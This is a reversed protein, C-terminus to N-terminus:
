GGAENAPRLRAHARTGRVGHIAALTLIASVILGQGPALALKVVIEVLVWGLILAAAVRSRARWIRWCLIAAVVAVVAHIAVWGTFEADDAVPGVFLVEGTAFMYALGILYSATIWGAAAVGYQIADKRGQETDLPPWSLEKLSRRTKM